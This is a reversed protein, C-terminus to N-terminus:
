RERGAFRKGGLSPVGDRGVEHGAHPVVLAMRPAAPPVPIGFVVMHM